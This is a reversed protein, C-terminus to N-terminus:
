RPGIGDISSVGEAKKRVKQALVVEKCVLYMELGKGQSKRDGSFEREPWM